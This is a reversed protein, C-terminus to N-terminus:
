NVATASPHELTLYRGRKAAQLGLNKSGRRFSTSEHICVYNKAHGDCLRSTNCNLM